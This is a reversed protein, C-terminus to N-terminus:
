LENRIEMVVQENRLYNYFLIPMSLIFMVTIIAVVPKDFLVVSEVMNYILYVLVSLLCLNGITRDIYMCKCAYRLSLAIAMFEIVLKLIGGSILVKLYGNHYYANGMYQQALAMAGKTGYGFWLHIGSAMPLLSEIYESRADISTQSGFLTSTIYYNIAGNRAVLLFGAFLIITFILINRLRRKRDILLALVTMTISLVIATRCMAMLENILFIFSYLLWKKEQTLINLITSALVGFILYVGFTNKNDFFSSIDESGYVSLSTIHILSNFHIVMNYISALLIFYAYIRYFCLIEFKSDPVSKIPSEVLILLLFISIVLDVVEQFLSTENLIIIYICSIVSLLVFLITFVSVRNIRKFGSTRYALFCILGIKFLDDVVTGNLGLLQPVFALVIFIGFYYPMTNRYKKIMM